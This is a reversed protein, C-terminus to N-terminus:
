SRVSASGEISRLPISRIASDFPALGKLRIDLVSKEPQHSKLYVDLTELAVDSLLTYRDKRRNAGRIHILKREDDIDEVKLKVVESIRLGASYIIM